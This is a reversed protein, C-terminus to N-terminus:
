FTLFFFIVFLDKSFDDSGIADHDYMEIAYSESNLKSLEVTDIFSFSNKNNWVPNLTKKQVPTKKAKKKNVKVENPHLKAIM